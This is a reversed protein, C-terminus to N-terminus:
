PIFIRSVGRYNQIYLVIEILRDVCQERYDREYIRDINGLTVVPLSTPSIEERIVQELSNEGKMSRNATLLIMQNEQAFQWVIRDSSTIPLQVEEFTMFRLPLLDLWGATTMSGFLVIAQGEINHDILFIM